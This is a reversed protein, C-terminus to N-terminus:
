RSVDGHGEAGAQVDEGPLRSRPLRDHDVGQEQDPARPRLGLQDARLGGGGRDLRDELDRRRARGGLHQFPRPVSRGIADEHDPPLDRSGPAVADEDVIRRRRHRQDIPEALAEELQVALVLVLAEHLRRPLEGHEIAEGAARRVDRGEATEHACPRLRPGLQSADLALRPLVRALFVEVAELEGLDVGRTELIALLVREAGLAAAELVGLADAGDQALGGRQEVVVAVGGRGAQRARGAQEALELAISGSAAPAASLTSAAAVWTSSATPRTRASRSRAVRSGSRRSSISARRSVMRLSFRFYPSLSAAM